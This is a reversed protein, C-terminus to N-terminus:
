SASRGRRSCRDSRKWRRRWSGDSAGTCHRHVLTCRNMGDDAVTSRYKCHCRRCWHHCRHQAGGGGGCRYRHRRQARENRIIRHAKDLRWENRRQNRRANRYELLTAQLDFANKTDRSALQQDLFIRGVKGFTHANCAVCCRRVLLLAHPRHNRPASVCTCTHSAPATRHAPLYTSRDFHSIWV